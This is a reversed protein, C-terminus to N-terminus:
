LQPNSNDSNDFDSSNLSMEKIWQYQFLKFLNVTKTKLSFSTINKDIKSMSANYSDKLTKIDNKGISAGALIIVSIDSDPYLNGINIEDYLIQSMKEPKPPISVSKALNKDIIFENSYIAKKEKCSSVKAEKCGFYITSIGRWIGEGLQKATIKEETQRSNKEFSNAGAEYEAACNYLTLPLQWKNSVKKEFKNFYQCPALYIPKDSDNTIILSIQDNAAYVKKDVRYNIKDAIFNPASVSLINKNQLQMTMLNLLLPATAVLLLTLLLVSGSLTLLIFNLKTFLSLSSHKARKRKIRSRINLKKKFTFLMKGKTIPM